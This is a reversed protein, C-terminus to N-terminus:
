YIGLRLIHLSYLGVGYEVLELDFSRIGHGRDGEGVMM